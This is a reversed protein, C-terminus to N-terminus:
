LTQVTHPGDGASLCGYGDVALVCIRLLAAGFRRWSAQKYSDIVDGLHTQWSSSSKSWLKVPVRLRFSVILLQRKEEPDLIIHDTPIM